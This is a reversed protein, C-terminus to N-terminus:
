KPVLRKLCMIWSKNQNNWLKSIINNLILNSNFNDDQSVARCLTALLSNAEANLSGQKLMNILDNVNKKTDLDMKTEGLRGTMVNLTSIVMDLDAKPMMEGKPVNQTSAIILKNSEQTAVTKSSLQQTATPNPWPVPMGPKVAGAVAGPASSGVSYSQGSTGMTHTQPRSTLPNVPRSANTKNYGPRSTQSMTASNSAKTSLSTNLHSPVPNLNTAVTNLHAPVPNLNAQSTTLNTSHPLSNYSSLNSANSPLQSTLFGTSVSSVATSNTLSSATTFSQSMGSVSTSGQYTTSPYGTSQAPYTPQTARHTTPQLATLPVTRTTTSAMTQSVSVAPRANLGTGVGQVVPQVPHVMTQPTYQTVPQTAYQPTQQLMSQAGYQPTQQLLSQGAYQPTAQTAYQVTPQVVSQGTYQTTLQNEVKSKMQRIQESNSSGTVNLTELAKDLMGADIFVESLEMLVTDFSENQYGAGSNSWMSFSLVSLKLMMEIRDELRSTGLNNKDGLGQLQGSNSLSQQLKWLNAVQYYDCALIYSITAEQYFGQEYLRKAFKHTLTRFLTLDGGYTYIICLTEKWDNLNSNLLVTEVDGQMLLHLLNLFPDKRSEVVKEVLELFVEQGGVYALLLAEVVKNLDLCRKAAEKFDANVLKNKLKMDSCWDLGSLSRVSSVGTVSSGANLDLLNNNTNMLNSQTDLLNANPDLLNSKLTLSNFFDEAEKDDQSTVESLSNTRNTFFAGLSGISQTALTGISQAPLNMNGGVNSTVSEPSLNTTPEFNSYGLTSLLDKLQGKYQCKLVSWTLKEYESTSSNVKSECFETFMNEDNLMRMVELVGDLLKVSDGDLQSTLTFNKLEVNNWSTVQGAFGSAIGGRKRTWVPVYSGEVTGSYLHHVNLQGDNSQSLFLGPVNPHWDVRSHHSLAETQFTSLLTFTREPTLHWCKTTDDKSSTLLVNPDHPSFKVDTLGRTHAKSEQANLETHSKVDGHSKLEFLPGSPNRLDWLQVSPANDDAYAVVLQTAQDPVWDLAVPNVRGMPDRFTSAPKRVKLDWVVVGSTDSPTLAAGASALIHPLRYNWSLSTVQGVKWKGYSVDVVTYNSADGLDVVSVQGDVGAVGLMNKGCYGLCKIPVSCVNTNFTSVLTKNETLAKADYFVVDGSSSGVVVLTKEDTYPVGLKIWKMTTLHANLDVPLSHLLSFEAIGPTSRSTVYDDFNNGGFNTGGYNAGGFNTNNFSFPTDPAYQNFNNEFTNSFFDSSTESNETVKFDLLNLSLPQTGERPTSNCSSEHLGSAALVYRSTASCPSFVGFGKM